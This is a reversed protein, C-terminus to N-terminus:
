ASVNKFNYLLYYIVQIVNYITHYLSLGLAYTFTGVFRLVAVVYNFCKLIGLLFSLIDGENLLSKVDDTIKSFYSIADQLISFDDLPNKFEIYQINALYSLFNFDEDYANLSMLLALVIFLPMLILILKKM